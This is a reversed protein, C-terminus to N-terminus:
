STAGLRVLRGSAASELAAEAIELIHVAADIPALPQRGERAAHLFDLLFAEGPKGGYAPSVPPEVRRERRGGAAWGPAESYLMYAPGDSFPMRVYGDTGRLAIFTDYTAGAYGAVSGALHYGANLTGMVGSRYRLAVCATDEVEIREPNQQGTLAVVESVRDDLLYSLADLYHCALWSLIGSGATERRFLWHSPDRYRVQSTVMRAEVTMIRGFAGGNLAQKVEQIIPQGRWLFFTGMVVGREHARAAIRRLDAAHLAGPKEFIVPKGAAIAAELLAPCLDNRVCVVLADLDPNGLLDAPDDTTSRVKASGAGLTKLDEGAIGCLHLSEIQPVVELTRMHQPGHPHPSAIVGVQFRLETM